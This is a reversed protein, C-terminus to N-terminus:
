ATRRRHARGYSWYLLLGGRGDAWQEGFEQAALFDVYDGADREMAEPGLPGMLEAFRKMTREDGIRRPFDFLPPRGTRYFVNPLLVTYGEEALRKAMGRHAPRIGGIDTLHIVGPRQVGDEHRYLVADATGDHTPIEIEQEIMFAGLAGHPRPNPPLPASVFNNHTTGAKRNARM